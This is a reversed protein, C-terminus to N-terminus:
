EATPTTAPATVVGPSCAHMCRTADEFRTGATDLCKSGGSM